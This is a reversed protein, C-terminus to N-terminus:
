SCWPCALICHEQNELTGATDTEPCSLASGETVGCGADPDLCLNLETVGLTSVLARLGVQHM